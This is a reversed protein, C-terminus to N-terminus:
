QGARDANFSTSMSFLIRNRVSNRSEQERGHPPVSTVRKIRIAITARAVAAAAASLEAAKSLEVFVVVL